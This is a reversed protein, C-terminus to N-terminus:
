WCIKQAGWCILMYWATLWPSTWVYTWPEVRSGTPSSLRHLFLEHLQTMECTMKDCSKSILIGLMWTFYIQTFLKSPSETLWSIRVATESEPKVNWFIVTGYLLLMQLITLLNLCLWEQVFSYLYFSPQLSNSLFMCLVNEKSIAWIRLVPSQPKVITLMLQSLVTTVSQTICTYNM